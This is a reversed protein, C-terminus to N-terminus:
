RLFIRLIALSADEASNRDADTKAENITKADGPSDTLSRRLDGWRFAGALVWLCFLPTHAQQQPRLHRRIFRQIPSANTSLKVMFAQGIEISNISHRLDQLDMPHLSLQPALNGTRSRTMIRRAQQHPHANQSSQHSHPPTAFDSPLSSPPPAHNVDHESMVASLLNPASSTCM